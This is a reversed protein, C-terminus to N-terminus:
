RDPFDFGALLIEFEAVRPWIRWYGISPFLNSTGMNGSFWSSRLMVHARLSVVRCPLGDDGTRLAANGLQFRHRRVRALEEVVAGAAAREKTGLLAIATDETRVPRNGARGHLFLRRNASGIRALADLHHLIV